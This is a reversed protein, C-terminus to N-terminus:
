GSGLRAFAGASTIPSQNFYLKDYVRLWPHEALNKQEVMMEYLMMPGSNGEAEAAEAVGKFIEMQQESKTVIEDRGRLAHPDQASKVWMTKAYDNARMISERVQGYAYM